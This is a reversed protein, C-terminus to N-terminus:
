DANGETSNGEGIIVGGDAGAYNYNAIGEGSSDVTVQESAIDYSNWVWLWIANSAFMLVIAIIAITAWLRMARRNDAIADRYVVYPVNLQNERNEM